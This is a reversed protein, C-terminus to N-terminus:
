QDVFMKPWFYKCRRCLRYGNVRRPAIRTCECVCDCRKTRVYYVFGYLAALGIVIWCETLNM